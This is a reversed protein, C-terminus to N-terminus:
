PFFSKTKRHYEVFTDWTAANVLLLMIKYM